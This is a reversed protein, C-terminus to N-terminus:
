IKWETRKDESIEVPYMHHDAEPVVICKKEWIRYFEAYPKTEKREWIFHATMEIMDVENQFAIKKVDVTKNRGINPSIKTQLGHPSNGNCMVEVQDKSLKLRVIKNILIIVGDGKINTNDSPSWIQWEHNLNITIENGNEYISRINEELDPFKNFLVLFLNALKQSKTGNLILRRLKDVKTETAIGTLETLTAQDVAIKEQLTKIEGELTTLILKNSAIQSTLRKVERIQKDNKQMKPVLIHDQVLEVKKTEFASALASLIGSEEKPPAKQQDWESELTTKEAELKEKSPLQRLEEESISINAEIAMKQTESEDLERRDATLSATLAAIKETRLRIEEATRFTLEANIIKTAAANFKEHYNKSCLLWIRHLITKIQVDIWNCARSWKHDLLKKTCLTNIVDENLTVNNEPNQKTDDILNILDPYNYFQNTEIISKITNM